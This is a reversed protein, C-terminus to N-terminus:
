ILRWLVSLKCGPRVVSRVSAGRPRLATGARSRARRWDAVAGASGGDVRQTAWRTALGPRNVPLVGARALVIDLNPAALSGCARQIEDARFTHWLWCAMAASLSIARRSM